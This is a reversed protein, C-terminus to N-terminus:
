APLIRSPGMWSDGCGRRAKLSSGRGRGLRRTTAFCTKPNYMMGMHLPPCSPPLPHQLHWPQVLLDEATPFVPYVRQSAPSPLRDLSTTSVCPPNGDAPSLPARSTSPEGECGAAPPDTGSATVRVTAPPPLMHLWGKASRGPAAAKGWVRPGAGVGPDTKVAAIQM